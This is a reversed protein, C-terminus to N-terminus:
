RAKGNKENQKYPLYQNIFKLYDYLLRAGDELSAEELTDVTVDNNNFLSAIFAYQDDISAGSPDSAGERLLKLYGKFHRLKPPPATYTKGGITVKLDLM